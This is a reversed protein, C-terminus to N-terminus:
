KWRWFPLWKLMQKVTVNGKAQIDPQEANLAKSGIQLTVRYKSFTCILNGESSQEPTGGPCITSGMEMAHKLRHM